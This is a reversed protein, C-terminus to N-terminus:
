ARKEVEQALLALPHRMGFYGEVSRALQSRPMYWRRFTNWEPYVRALSEVMLYDLIRDSGPKGVLVRTGLLFAELLGMVRMKGNGLYYWGLHSVFRARFAWWAWKFPNRSTALRGPEQNNYIFGNARGHELIDKHFSLGLVVSAAFVGAYDDHANADKNMPKGLYSPYRAYCGPVVECNRVVRNFWHYRDEERLLGLTNYLVITLGLHLLGNKTSEPTPDRDVTVMGVLDVYHKTIEDRIQDLM